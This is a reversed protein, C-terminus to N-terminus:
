QQDIIKEVASVDANKWAYTKRIEIIQKMSLTRSDWGKLECYKLVVAHRGEVTVIKDTQGTSKLLDFIKDKM